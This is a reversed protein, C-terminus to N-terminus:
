HEDKDGMEEQLEIKALKQIKLAEYEEDVNRIAKVIEQKRLHLAELTKHSGRKFAEENQQIGSSLRSGVYREELSHYLKAVDNTVVEYEELLQNVVTQELKLANREQIKNSMELNLQDVKDM